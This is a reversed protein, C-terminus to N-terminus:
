SAWDNAETKNNINIISVDIVTVICVLSACVEHKYMVQGIHM